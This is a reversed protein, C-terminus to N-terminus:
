FGDADEFAGIVHEVRADSDRHTEIVVVDFRVNLGKALGEPRKSIYDKAVMVLHRMKKPGVAEKASGYRASQRKKVEVFVVTQGDKAVIDAEGYRTRYNRELIKYGKKELLKVAEDEGSKGTSLRGKAPKEEGEIGSGEVGSLVPKAKFKLFEWFVATLM